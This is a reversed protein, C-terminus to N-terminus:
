PTQCTSLYPGAQPCPLRFESWSTILTSGIEFTLPEIRRPYGCTLKSAFLFFIILRDCHQGGRKVEQRMTETAYIKAVECRGASWRNGEPAACSALMVLGALQQTWEALRLKQM